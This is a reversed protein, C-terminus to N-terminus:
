YSHSVPNTLKTHSHGGTARTKRPNLGIIVILAVIRM